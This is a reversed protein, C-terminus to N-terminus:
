GLIQSTCFRHAHKSAYTSDLIVSNCHECEMWGETEDLYLGKNLTGCIPCVSDYQKM